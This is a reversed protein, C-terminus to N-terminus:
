NAFVQAHMEQKSKKQFTTLGNCETNGWYFILNNQTADKGNPYYKQYDFVNTLGGKGDALLIVNQDNPKVINRLFTNSSAYSVAIEGGGTHNNDNQEFRNDTFSSNTVRGRKSDYGGFALGYKDNHHLYNNRVTMNTAIQGKNEAGIEIGMDSHHVENYEITINSAGDVYIGAASSDYISHINWVTNNACQGTRVGLKGTWSEGAIFDIGINNMNYVKNNTVQIQEVNGNFTLAESWAPECDHLTCNDIIVQRRSTKQNTNYVTIAMAGGNEGGGRINYIHLNRLEINTGGGTIRVGSCEVAKLETLELNIFRLYSKDQIYIINLTGDASTKKTEKGSIIPIKNPTLNTFTIPGDQVNGQVNVTVAEYYTGVGIYVTSGPTASNAAKKITLWATAESTGINTDKGSKTVYYSKGALTQTWLLASVLSIIQLQILM